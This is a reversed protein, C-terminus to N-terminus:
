SAVGRAANSCSVTIPPWRISDGEEEGKGEGDEGAAGGGGGGSSARPTLSDALSGVVGRDGALASIVSPPQELEEAQDMLELTQTLRVNLHLFALVEPRYVAAPVGSRCFVRPPETLRPPEAAAVVSHSAHSCERDFLDRLYATLKIRRGQQVKESRSFLSKGPFRPVLGLEKETRFARKIEQHMDNFERYRRAVLWSPSVTEGHLERSWGVKLVYEAYM